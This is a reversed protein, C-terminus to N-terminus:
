PVSVAAIIDMDGMLKRNSAEPLRLECGQSVDNQFTPKSLRKEKLIILSMM